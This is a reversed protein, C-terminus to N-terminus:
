NAETLILSFVEFWAHTYPQELIILSFFTKYNRLWSSGLIVKLMQSQYLGLPKIKHLVPGPDLLTFISVKESLYKFFSTDNNQNLPLFNYSYNM